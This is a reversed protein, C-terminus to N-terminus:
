FRCGVQSHAPQASCCHLEGPLRVDLTFPGEHDAVAFGPPPGFLAADPDGQRYEVTRTEWSGDIPDSRKSAVIAKREDSVWAETVVVRQRGNPGPLFVRTMRMGRTLVGDIWRTGLDELSVDTTRWESLRVVLTEHHFSRAALNVIERWRPDMGEAARSSVPRNKIRHAVCNVPDVVYQYGGVPDVIQILRIDETEFMPRETRTRGQADRYVWEQSERGYVGSQVRGSYPSGTIALSADAFPGDFVARYRRAGAAQALADPTGGAVLAIVLLSRALFM